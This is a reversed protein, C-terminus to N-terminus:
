KTDLRHDTRIIADAIYLQMIVSNVATHIDINNYVKTTDDADLQPFHSFVFEIDDEDPHNAEWEKLFQAYTDNETYAMSHVSCNEMFEARQNDVVYVYCEIVKAHNRIFRELWYDNDWEHAHVSAPLLLSILPIYKLM